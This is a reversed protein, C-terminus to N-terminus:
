SPTVTPFCDALRVPEGMAVLVERAGEYPERSHARAINDVLMLDGTQWPERQTHEDYVKNLLAIVDDGIPEGGGFRSNFPLGDPGFEMVLYDRVEPDITWENLFAIQNFWVRKGTKPHTIIASRRQKTRLGDMEDWAFEIHNERCYREVVSRDETAFAEQWPVGVLENYNRVLQWGEREFREVLDSPLAELVAAADAVGTVGGSQPAGLCSFLMLGPFELTYSLEHHMCMPQNPPWKSSSYIGDEYIWRPAFAEREPMLPAALERAVQGFGAADTLPLGRVLLAGHEDVLSRLQDRHEAVWSPAEAIDGVRLIAPKDAAPSVDLETAPAPM